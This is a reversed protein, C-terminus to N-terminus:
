LLYAGELKKLRKTGPDVELGLGELARVSLLPTGLTIAIIDDSTKRGDVEIWASGVRQVVSRGNALIFRRKVPLAIGFEKVISSPIASVTAGTDVVADKVVRGLSPKDIRSVKIDVKIIGM